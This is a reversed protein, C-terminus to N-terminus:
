YYDGRTAEKSLRMWLWSYIRNGLSKKRKAERFLVFAPDNGLIMMYRPDQMYIWVKFDDWSLHWLLETDDEWQIPALRAARALAAQDTVPEIIHGTADAFPM